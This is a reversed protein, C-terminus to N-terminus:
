QESHFHSLQQFSKIIQSIFDIRELIWLFMKLLIHLHFMPWLNLLNPPNSWEHLHTLRTKLTFILKDTSYKLGYCCEFHFKFLPLNLNHCIYISKKKKYKSTNVLFLETFLSFYATKSENKIFTNSFLNWSKQFFWVKKQIITIGNETSM